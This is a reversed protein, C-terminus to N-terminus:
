NLLIHVIYYKCYAREAFVAILVLTYLTAWFIERSYNEIVRRLALWFTHKKYEEEKTKLDIVIEQVEPMSFVKTVPPHRKNIERPDSYFLINCINLLCSM